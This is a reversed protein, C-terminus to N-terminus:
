IIRKALQPHNLSIFKKMVNVLYDGQPVKFGDKIWEGRELIRYLRPFEAYCYDKIGFMETCLWIINPLTILPMANILTNHILVRDFQRACPVCYKYGSVLVVDPSECRDCRM